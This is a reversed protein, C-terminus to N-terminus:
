ATPEDDNWQMAKKIEAHSEETKRYPEDALRLLKNRRAIPAHALDEGECSMACLTGVKMAHSSLAALRRRLEDIEAYAAKLPPILVNNPHTQFVEHLMMRDSLEHEPLGVLPRM